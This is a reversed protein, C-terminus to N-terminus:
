DPKAGQAQARGEAEAREADEREHREEEHKVGAEIAAILGDRYDALWRERKLQEGIDRLAARVCAYRREMAVILEEADRTV